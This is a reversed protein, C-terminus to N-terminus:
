VDSPEFSITTLGMLRDLHLEIRKTPEFASRV